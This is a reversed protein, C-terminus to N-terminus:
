SHPKREKKGGYWDSFESPDILNELYPQWEAKNPSFVKLAARTPPSMIPRILNLIVEFSEPTNVLLTRFITNPWYKEYQSVYGLYLPLCTPCAQNILNFGDMNLLLIWQTVNKGQAQSERIKTNAREIGRLSYLTLQKVKGAVAMQRVNWDGFFSEVVPRGEKDVGDYYVPFDKEFEAFVKNNEWDDVNNQNRWKLAEKLM